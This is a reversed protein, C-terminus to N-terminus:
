SVLQNVTPMTNIGLFFAFSFSPFHPITFEYIRLNTFDSFSDMTEAMPPDAEQALPEDAKPMLCSM